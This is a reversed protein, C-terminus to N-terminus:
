TGVLNEVFRGADFRAFDALDEGNAVFVPPVGTSEHIGVLAGGRGSGDLKTMIVGTLPIAAHFERAQVVANGGTGADVVLFNEHPAHPDLRSLARGVKSLQQMLNDRTHLRGATDCILFQMKRRTATQFADFCVSAPDAGYQSAAMEVGLREAWATLQEIAGARFTDAGALMVSHHRGRLFHALKAVCTTKGVGNVGTMLIVKPRDAIPSLDPVSLNALRDGIVERV